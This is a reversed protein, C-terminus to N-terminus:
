RVDEFLHGVVVSKEARYQRPTRQTFAKFTKIFHSQDAFGSSYGIETLSLETHHMLGLARMYKKYLLTEETNMGTLATFKRALQRPSYCLKKSLEAVPLIEAKQENLFLNFAMEQEPIQPLRDKLWECFIRVRQRFTPAEGLRHWLSHISADVLTLDTCDNAFEGAPVRFIKQVASPQFVVGFFCQRHPLQLQIPATNYGNISCRPMDKPSGGIRFRFGDPEEFSFIVEVVGKPLIVEQRNDTNHRVTQWFAQVSHRLPATEPVFFEAPM